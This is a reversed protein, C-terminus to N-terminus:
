PSLCEEGLGHLCARAFSPAKDGDPRCLDGHHLYGVPCEPPLWPHGTTIGKSDRYVSTASPSRLEDVSCRWSAVTGGFVSVGSQLPEYVPPSERHGIQIGVRFSGFMGLLMAAIVALFETDKRWNM